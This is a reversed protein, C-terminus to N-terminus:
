CIVCGKKKAPETSSQSAVEQSSPTETQSQQSAVYESELVLSESNLYFVPPKDNALKWTSPEVVISTASRIQRIVGRGYM